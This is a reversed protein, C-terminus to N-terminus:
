ITLLRKGDNNNARYKQSIEKANQDIHKLNFDKNLQNELAGILDQPLSM